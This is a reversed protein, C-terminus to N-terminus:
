KMHVCTGDNRTRVKGVRGGVVGWLLVRRMDLAKEVCYLCVFFVGKESGPLSSFLIHLHIYAYLFFNILSFFTLGTFSFISSFQLPLHSVHFCIGRATLFTYLGGRVESRM